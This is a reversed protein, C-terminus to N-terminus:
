GLQLQIARAWKVTVTNATGEGTALAILVGLHEDNPMNANSAAVSGALVGNIYGYVTTGDYYMEATVDSADAMTVLELTTEASDKELVLSLVASADVTRFYLGDSVGGIAEEDNISLGIIFDCQDADTHQFKCGFYFPWKSAFSFGEGWMAQLGQDETGSPTWAVAGGDVSDVSVLTGATFVDVDAGAATTTSVVQSDVPNLRWKCVNPGFADFWRWTKESDRMVLHNNVTALETTM